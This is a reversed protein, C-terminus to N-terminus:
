GTNLFLFMKSSICKKSTGSSCCLFTKCINGSCTEFVTVTQPIMQYPWNQRLYIYSAIRSWTTPFPIRITIQTLQHFSSWSKFLLIRVFNIMNVFLKVTIRILIDQLIYDINSVICPLELVMNRIFTSVTFKLIFFM